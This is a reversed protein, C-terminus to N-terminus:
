MLFLEQIRWNCRTQATDKWCSPKLSVACLYPVLEVAAWPDMELGYAKGHWNSYCWSNDWTHGPSSWEGKSWGKGKSGSKGKYGGKGRGTEREEKVKEKRGADTRRTDECDVNSAPERSVVKMKARSLVWNMETVIRIKSASIRTVRRDKRKLNRFM